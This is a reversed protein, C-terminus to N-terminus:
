STTTRQEPSIEQDEVSCEGECSECFTNDFTQSLEYQQSEEDWEAWADFKIDTSGCTSCCKKIKTM